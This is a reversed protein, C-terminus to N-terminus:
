EQKQPVNSNFCDRFIKWSGDVQRELITLYKGDIDITEGGAKPTLIATYTGRAFAWDGAVRVEENTIGMNFTFQDM